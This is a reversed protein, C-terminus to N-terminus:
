GRLSLGNEMSGEWGSSWTEGRVEEYIGAKYGLIKTVVGLAKSKRKSWKIEDDHNYPKIACHKINAYLPGMWYGYAMKSRNPFSM